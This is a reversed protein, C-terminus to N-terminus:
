AAAKLSAMREALVWLARNINSDQDIGRIPRVTGRRRRNDATRTVFSQGGKIINEQVTNFTTWLNAAQDDRRRAHLLQEPKIPPEAVHGEADPQGDWRLLHAAEAFAQREPAALQVHQWTDAANLAREAQSVVSFTADIVDGIIKRENGSHRVKAIAWDSGILLGNLCVLRLMGLGIEYAATGDHANRLVIEPVTDGVKAVAQSMAPARFRIVHKQYGERSADRVRQEIAHVPQFGREGLAEVIRATPVYVYRDSRSEHAREAFTAPCAARLADITMPQNRMHSRNDTRALSGARANAFMTSILM